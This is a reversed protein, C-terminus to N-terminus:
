NFLSHSCQESFLLHLAFPVVGENLDHMIDVSWNKLIHFNQLENLVCKMKVGRTEKFDVNESNEICKLAKNYSNVTRWNAPNEKCANRCESIPTECFRCYFTSMFSGVFGLAMKAGLNDFSLLALAGKVIRGDGVDIGYTQIFDPDQYVLRWIHNVDTYKTKLDDAYCLCLLFINDLKSKFQPPM